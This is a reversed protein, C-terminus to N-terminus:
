KGGLPHPQDLTTRLDLELQIQLASLFLIAPYLSCYIEITM